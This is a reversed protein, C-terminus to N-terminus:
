VEVGLLKTSHDLRTTEKSGCVRGDRKKEQDEPSPDPTPPRPDAVVEVEWQTM